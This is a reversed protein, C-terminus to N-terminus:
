SVLIEYLENICERYKQQLNEQERKKAQATKLRQKQQRLHEIKNRHRDNESAIQRDITELESSQM